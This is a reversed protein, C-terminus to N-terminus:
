VKRILFLGCGFAKAPGLGKHLMLLFLEPDTVILFGSFDLTSFRISGKRTFARLQTYGEISIQNEEFQFGNKEARRRLWDLGAQHILQALPPRKEMPLNKWGIRMKRDMVVDHRKGDKCIVPNVRVQFALRQGKRLKPAFPKPPDIKWINLSNVPPRESLIFYKPRGLHVNKRFLFDRQCDPDNEFTRWLMCHEKYSDSLNYLLSGLNPRELLTLRSLYMM